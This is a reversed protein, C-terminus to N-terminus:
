DSSWFPEGVVIHPPPRSLLTKTYGCYISNERPFNM